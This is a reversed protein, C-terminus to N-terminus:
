DDAFMEKLEDLLISRIFESKSRFGSYEFGKELLAIEEGKLQFSITKENEEM